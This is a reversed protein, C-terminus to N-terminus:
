QEKFIASSHSPPLWLPRADLDLTPVRARRDSSFRCLGGPREMYRMSPRRRLLTTGRHPRSLRLRGRRRGDLRPHQDAPSPSDASPLIARSHSPHRMYHYAGGDRGSSGAQRDRRRYQTLMRWCHRRLLSGGIALSAPGSCCSVIRSARRRCEPRIAFAACGAVGQRGHLGSRAPTRHVRRRSPRDRSSRFEPAFAWWLAALLVLRYPGLFAAAHKGESVSSMCQVACEPRPPPMRFTEERVRHQRPTPWSTRRSGTELV